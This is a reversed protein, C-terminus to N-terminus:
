MHNDNDTNATQRTIHPFYIVEQNDGPKKTNSHLPLIDTGISKNRREVGLQPRFPEIQRLIRYVIKEHLGGGVAGWRQFCQHQAHKFSKHM